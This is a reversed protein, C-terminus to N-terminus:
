FKNLLSNIGGALTGGLQGGPDTSLINGAVQGLFPSGTVQSTLINALGAIPNMLLSDDGSANAPRWRFYKFTVTLMLVSDDAWGLTQHDISVPWADVYDYAVTPNNQADYHIVTITTTYTNPYRFNFDEPHSLNIGDMWNVFFQREWMGDTGSGGELSQLAGTALSGLESGIGGGVGQAVLGGVANNLIGLLGGTNNGTCFFSLTMDNYATQWPITRNPGYTRVEQTAFTRGPLEASECQLALKQAVDQTGGNLLGSVLNQLFGGSQTVQPPAFLVRYRNARALDSFRNLFSTFGGIDSM